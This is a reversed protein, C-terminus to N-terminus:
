IAPATPRQLYPVSADVIAQALEKLTAFIPGSMDLLAANIIALDWTGTALETMAQSPQTLIRVRWGESDLVLKLAQQNALDDDVILIGVESM